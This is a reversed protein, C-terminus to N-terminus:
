VAAHDGRVLRGVEGLKRVAVDRDAEVLDAEGAASGARPSAKRVPFALGSGPAEFGARLDEVPLSFDVPARRLVVDLDAQQQESM